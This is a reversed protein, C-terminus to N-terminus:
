DPPLVGVAIGGRAHGQDGGACGPNRQHSRGQGSRSRHPRRVRDPRRVARPQGDRVLLRRAPDPVLVRLELATWFYHSAYLMKSAVVTGDPREQIVLHNIRLTPRLGFRTEQWYLFDTSGALSAAPYELLYRQLDPLAELAPLREIMSRFESAVFTPRDADRYVALRANGGERYGNVYEFALQRFLRMADSKATPQRWDVEKKFRQLAEAGLKVKCDGVRCRRLDALDADTLTLEAFDELRPPDSIRTTHRFGGGSEFTEIDTVREVYDHPSAQVWVAGFVPVENNADADLLKTVPQGSTLARHEQSSLRVATTLYSELAMPLVEQPIQQTAAGRGDVVLVFAALLPTCLARVGASVNRGKDRSLTM